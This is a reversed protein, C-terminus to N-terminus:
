AGLAVAARPQSISAHQAHAPKGAGRPFLARAPLLRAEPAPKQPHSAGASDWARPVEHHINRGFAFQLNNLQKSLGLLGPESFFRLRRPFSCPIIRNGRFAISSSVRSSVQWPLYPPKYRPARSPSIQVWDVAFSFPSHSCGVHM